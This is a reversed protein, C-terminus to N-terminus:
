ECICEAKMGGFLLRRSPQDPQCVQQTGKYYCCKVGNWGCDPLPDCKTAPVGECNGNNSDRDCPITVNISQDGANTRSTALCEQLKILSDDPNCPPKNMGDKCRCLTKCEEPNSLDYAAKYGWLSNDPSCEEKSYDAWCANLEDDCPLTVGFARCAERGIPQWIPEVLDSCLVCVCELFPTIGPFMVPVENLIYDLDTLWRNIDLTGAAVMASFFEYSGPCKEKECVDLRDQMVGNMHNAAILTPLAFLVFRSLM